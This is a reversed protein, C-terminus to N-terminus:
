NIVFPSYVLFHVAGKNQETSMSSYGRHTNNGNKGVKAM